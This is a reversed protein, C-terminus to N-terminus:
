SCTSKLFKLRAPTNFFLDLVEVTTGQQRAAPEAPAIDGGTTRLRHAVVEGTARSLITLRSVAAISSLGEGRFGFTDLAFLDELARLKSTAHRALALPLDDSAIGCGDDRVEIRRRGGEEVVVEIQTAGADLANDVLERAVSAPREIVEGAAIQGVVSPTLVALRSHTQRLM